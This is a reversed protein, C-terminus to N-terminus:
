RDQENKLGNKIWGAVSSSCPTNPHLSHQNLLIYAVSYLISPGANFLM